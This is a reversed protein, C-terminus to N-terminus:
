VPGDILAVIEDRDFLRDRRPGVRYSNVYGTDAWKRLTNPHVAIIKSAETVTVKKAWNGRNNRGPLAM